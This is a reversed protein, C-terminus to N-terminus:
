LFKLKKLGNEKKFYVYEIHNDMKLVAMNMYILVTAPIM